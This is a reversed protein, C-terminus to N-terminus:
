SRHIEMVLKLFRMFFPRRIVVEGLPVYIGPKRVLFAIIEAVLVPDHFREQVM